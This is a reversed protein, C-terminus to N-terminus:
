SPLSTLGAVLRSLRSTTPAQAYRPASPRPREHLAHERRRRSSREAVSSPDRRGISLGSLYAGLTPRFHNCAGLDGGRFPRHACEDATVTPSHVCIRIFGPDFTASLDPPFAQLVISNLPCSPVVSFRPIGTRTRTEGHPHRRKRAYNRADPRHALRGSHVVLLLGPHSKRKEAFSGDERLSEVTRESSPQVFLLLPAIVEFAAPRAAGM